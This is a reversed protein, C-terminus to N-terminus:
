EVADTETPEEAGTLPQGSRDSRQVDDATNLVGDPGASFIEMETGSLAHFFYPNGWRDLLEGQSNIAPHDSPFVVLNRPNGGLLAEMVMQNDGAVPNREFSLRYISFIQEIFDLDEEASSDPSHLSEAIQIAELVIHKGEDTTQVRRDNTIGTDYPKRGVIHSDPNEIARAYPTEETTRVPLEKGSTTGSGPPGPTESTPSRLLLVVAVGTGIIVLGPVVVKKM